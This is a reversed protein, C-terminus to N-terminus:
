IIKIAESIIKIVEPTVTKPQETDWIRYIDYLSQNWLLAEKTMSPLNHNRRITNYQWLLAEELASVRNNFTAKDNTLKPLMEDIEEKEYWLWRLARAVNSTWINFSATNKWEAGILDAVTNWAWGAYWKYGKIKNLDDIAKMWQSVTSRSLDWWDSKSMFSGLQNELTLLAKEYDWKNIAQAMSSLVASNFVIEDWQAMTADLIKQKTTQALPSSNTIDFWMISMATEFSSLWKARQKEAIDLYWKKEVDTNRLQTPIWSLVKASFLDWEGDDTWWAAWNWKSPNFYGYLSSKPVDRVGVTKDYKWTKPNKTGNSDLVKVTGDWNDQVVFWVHWYKAWDWTLVEPKWIAVWGTQASTNADENKSWLKSAKSNDYINEDAVGMSKLWNNVFTWCEWWFDWIEYWSIFNSLWDVLQAPSVVNYSKGYSTTWSTWWTYDNGNMLRVEWTAQNVMVSLDNWNADKITEVSWKDTWWDTISRWSSLTAFEPKQRLYKLFNEELAQSLNIGKQKALAMVDNIVQQEGRQIISGYKDYYDDLVSQLAMQKQADTGNDAQDLTVNTAAYKAQALESMWEPTYDYYMGYQDQLQSIAKEWIRNREQRESQMYNMYWQLRTLEVNNNEKERLLDSNTDQAMAMLTAKTAWPYAKVLDEYTHKVTNDIDLNRAIIDAANKAYGKEEDTAYNETRDDILNGDKDLFLWQSKLWEIAKSTITAESEWSLVSTTDLATKDKIKDEADQKAQLAAQYKAPDTTKLMTLYDEPIDWYAIWYWISDPTLADYKGYKKNNEFWQNLFDIQAQSRGKWNIFFDDFARKDNFLYPMTQKYWELNKSIEAMREPSDSQYDWEWQKPTTETKTWTTPTTEKTKFTWGVKEVGAKLNPNQKLKEQQQAYTLNNWEDRIKSYNDNQTTWQKEYYQTWTDYSYNGAWQNQYSNAKNTWTWQYETPYGFTGTSSSKSTATSSTNSTPTTNTTTTKSNAIQSNMNNIVDSAKQWSAVQSKMQNIQDQTYGKDLLVQNYDKAM